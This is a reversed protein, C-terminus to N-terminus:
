SKTRLNLGLYWCFACRLFVFRGCDGDTRNYWLDCKKRTESRRWRAQNSLSLNVPVIYKVISLNSYYGARTNREVAVKV